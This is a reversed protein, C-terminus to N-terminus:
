EVFRRAELARAPHGHLDGRALRLLDFEDVLVRLLSTQTKGAETTFHRAHSDGSAIQKLRGAGEPDQALDAAGSEESGVAAGLLQNGPLVIGVVGLGPQIVQRRGPDRGVLEEVDARVPILGDDIGVRVRQHDLAEDLPRQLQAQEIEVAHRLDRRGHRPLARAVPTALMAQDLGRAADRDLFRQLGLREERQLHVAQGQGPLVAVRGARDDGSEDARAADLPKTADHHGIM